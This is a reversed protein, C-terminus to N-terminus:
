MEHNRETVVGAFEFLRMIHFRGGVTLLCVGACLPMWGRCLASGLFGGAGTILVITM